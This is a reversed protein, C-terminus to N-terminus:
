ENKRAMRGTFVLVKDDNSDVEKLEILTGEHCGYDQYPENLLEGFIEDNQTMFTLRVWVKEIGNEESYLLAQVDDPFMDNRYRDLHSWKESRFEEVMDDAYYMTDIHEKVDKFIEPDYNVVSLDFFEYKSRDFGYLYMHKGGDHHEQPKMAEDRLRLIYITNKNDPYSFVQLSGAEMAAILIPQFNLGQTRDIYCYAIAGTISEDLEGPMMEDLLERCHIYIFKKYIERFGVDLISKLEDYLTMDREKMEERM